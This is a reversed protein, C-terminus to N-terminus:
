NQRSRAPGVVILIAHIHLVGIRLSPWISCTFDIKLIQAIRAHRASVTGTEAACAACDVRTPRATSGASVSASPGLAPDASAERFVILPIFTGNSLWGTPLM